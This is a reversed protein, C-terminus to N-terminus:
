DGASDDRFLLKALNEVIDVTRLSVTIVREILKLIYQPDDSYGNPDHTIGSRKDTKVRYQDVIWDLAARNGLRYAFAREPIDRLTLTDNYKLTEYVKYNGEPSDVKGKPLMKEVRYSPPTRTAEWGLQYRDASEYTLHLEALKKGAESYASFDHVFPICPLSRQLDLAYRERYGPHHLIGFVYYFIDWKSIATDNYHSRFKDLAWDTINERRNSGDAHYIYYPFCQVQRGGYHLAPTTSTIQASFPIQRETVTCIAANESEAVQNPFITAFHGPRDILPYGYYLFKKTFPRYVARRVSTSVFDAVHGAVLHNKLTSSWKVSTYDVFDDVDMDGQHSRRTYRDVEVNYDNCFQAIRNELTTRSFDYVYADRNSSVGLSYTQFVTESTLTLKARKAVKSGLRMFSTFEQETESVIWRHNRDPKKRQWQFKFEWLLSPPPPSIISRTAVSSLFDLKEQKEWYDPLKCYYLDRGPHEKNRIAITIGVGVQIDFVNGVAAGTTNKRLDGGLDLHYVRTFDKLLHNRMGDFSNAHVFSNNSVYCVVGDRGDLRDSAWRWFRVYADSIKAKLTASSDKSYTDRIRRDLLPYQRNKNNDNENEQGVNYPPNGIVVNIPARIQDAVRRTNRESFLMSGQRRGAYDATTVTLDLTDVFCLGPFARYKGTLAYYEYEINLSAIYYPMLLVENAFIHHNYFDDFNRPNGQRAHRLLNVVFNGTGTAPDVLFVNEDGMKVGFEVELAEQTAACMFDVIPRPTYVIGHTDADEVSYDQFFREYVSNIFDQKDYFETLHEAASEIALYFQDLAGLFEQRNFYESALAAIVKEIEAAIVNRSVFDEVGFVKRIIRETMLHQILMEDVTEQSINPDLSTKCLDLFDAYRLAFITNQDHAQKIRENLTEAINPIEKGYRAIAQEFDEFPQFDYNLFRALLEALKEPDQISCAFTRYNNQYLIATQTNEFITNDLPYGTNIKKDIESELDDSLDKAEWWGRPLKWHDRLTGDPIISGSGKRSRGPLEEILIWNKKRGMGQLLGSFARRTGGEHYIGQSQLQRLEEYYKWPTTFIASILLSPKHNFTRM